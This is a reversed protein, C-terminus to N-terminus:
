LYGDRQADCPRRTERGRGNCLYGARASARAARNGTNGAVTSAASTRSSRTDRRDSRDRKAPHATNGAVNQDVARRDDHERANRDIASGRRRASACYAAAARHRAADPSAWAAATSLRCRFTGAATCRPPQQQPQPASPTSRLVASQPADPSQAPLPPREPLNEPDVSGLNRVIIATNTFGTVQLAITEGPNIGPPLQATLTQGLLSIRDTGDQAPLVTASLVDGVSLKAQFETLVAGLNLTSEEIAAQANAVAQLAFAALPDLNSM